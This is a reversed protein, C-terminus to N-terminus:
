LFHMEADITMVKINTIINARKYPIIYEVLKVLNLRINIYLQNDAKIM